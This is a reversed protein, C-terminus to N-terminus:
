KLFVTTGMGKCAYFKESTVLMCVWKAEIDQLCRLLPCARFSVKGDGCTNTTNNNFKNHQQQMQQMRNLRRAKAASFLIWLNLWHIKTPNRARFEAKTTNVPFLTLYNDILIVGEPCLHKELSNSKTSHKYKLNAFLSVVNLYDM